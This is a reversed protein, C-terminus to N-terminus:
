EYAEFVQSISARSRLVFLWVCSLSVLGCLTVCLRYDLVEGLSGVLLSFASCSATVLGDQFANVRSRMREPIYRQTAAVRLIYSNGGLFGCACRNALMLPYPLWLLIADMVDFVTYVFVTLGFRKKPPVKVKYQLASAITRGVFEAGSFFAYMTASFGPATRFFAILIPYYGTALGNSIAQYGLLGRLGREGALYSFAERVDSAWAALSYERSERPREVVRVRSEILSALMALGGQAMLLRPVGITDLLVAAFPAMIVSLTTYLMSSVAYGKQEAGDPIVEPYISTWALSDVAEMSSLALSVALYGVYSFPFRLLYLGLLAYAVGCVLDGAVLFAKRPLRDMIPAVLLPVLVHPVLQIALVLASALTSGTEDFVFFSLAFEGAIGGAAGLASALTILSFDRTWLRPKHNPSPATGGSTSKPM